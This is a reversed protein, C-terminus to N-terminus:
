MKGEVNAITLGNETHGSWGYLSRNFRSRGKFFNYSNSYGLNRYRDSSNSNESVCIKFALPFDIDILRKKFIRISPLQPHLIYYGNVSVHVVCAILLMLNVVLLVGKLLRDMHMNCHKWSCVHCHLRQSRDTEYM